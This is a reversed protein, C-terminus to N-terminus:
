CGPKSLPEIKNLKMEVAYSGYDLVWRLSVGNDLQDAEVEYLPEGTQSQPDFYALRFTWGPRAVLTQDSLSAQVAKAADSLPSIFAVLLKAGKVETGEFVLSEVQTKGARASAILFATHATPFLTGKPLAFQAAEPHTFNAKGPAGAPMHATGLLTEGGDGESKMTFRYQSADDSEWSSFHMTQPLTEGSPLHLNMTGSQAMLWGGCVKEVGYAIKGSVSSIAVDERISDLSVEYAARHSAQEVAGVTAAAAGEAAWSAQSGMTCIALAIAAHRTMRKVNM